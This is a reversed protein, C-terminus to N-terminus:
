VRDETNKKKRKELLLRCVLNERSQLESTQEESRHDWTWVSIGGETEFSDPWTFRGNLLDIATRLVLPAARDGTVRNAHEQGAYSRFLTTYPFLTVRPPPRTILSPLSPLLRHSVCR